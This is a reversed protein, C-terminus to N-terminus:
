QDCDGVKICLQSPAVWLHSRQPGDQLSAVVTMIKISLINNAETQEYNAIMKTDINELSIPSYNKRTTLNISVEYFSILLTREKEM